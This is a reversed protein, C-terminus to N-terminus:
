STRHRDLVHFYALFAGAPLKDNDRDLPLDPQTFYTAEADLNECLLGDVYYRGSGITLDPVTAQNAVAGIAFAEQGEPGGHPGILDAALRELNICCSPRTSTGTPM